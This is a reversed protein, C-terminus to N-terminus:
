WEDDEFRWDCNFHKLDDYLINTVDDLWVRIKNDETTEVTVLTYQNCELELIGDGIYKVFVLNKSNAYKDFCRQQKENFDYKDNNEGTIYFFRVVVLALVVWVIIWWM